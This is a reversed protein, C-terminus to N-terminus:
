EKLSLSLQTTSEILSQAIALISHPAMHSRLNQEWRIREPKIPQTNTCSTHKIHITNYASPSLDLRQSPHHFSYICTIPVHDCPFLGLDPKNRTEKYCTNAVLSVAALALADKYQMPREHGYFVISPENSRSKHSRAGVKTSESENLKELCLVGQHTSPTEIRSSIASRM